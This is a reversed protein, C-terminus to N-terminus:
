QMRPRFRNHLIVPMEKIKHGPGAYWNNDSDMPQMGITTVIDRSSLNICMWPVFDSGQSWCKKGVFYLQVLHTAFCVVNSVM